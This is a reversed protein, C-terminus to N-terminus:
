KPMEKATEFNTIFTSTAAFNFRTRSMQITCLTGSTRQNTTWLPHPTYIGSKNRKQCTGYKMPPTTFRSFCCFSFHWFSMTLVDQQQQTLSGEWYFVVTKIQTHSFVSCCVLRFSGAATPGRPSNSNASWCLSRGQSELSTRWTLWSVFWTASSAIRARLIGRRTVWTVSTFTSSSNWRAIKLKM